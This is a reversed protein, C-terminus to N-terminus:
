KVLAILEDSLRIVEDFHIEAEEHLLQDFKEKIDDPVNFSKLLKAAEDMGDIDIDKACNSLLTLAESFDAKSFDNGSSKEETSELVMTISESLENFDSIINDHHAEVFSLDGQGSADELAKAKASLDDAGILRAVGKLAHVHIKYEPMDKKEYADKMLEIQGNKSFSKLSNLYFDKKGMSYSLGSETNLFSSLTDFIEKYGDENQSEDAKAPATQVAESLLSSDLYQRCMNILEKESVPKSLYDTFGMELYAERAGIVANATLMIVPTDPNKNDKMTKMKRFAEVGDPSPMMHDLFIIDYKKETILKLFEEGGGATDVTMKSPEFLARMVDLNMDVDDVVLVKASPALFWASPDNDASAAEERERFSGITSEDDTGQPITVIFSTGKGYTSECAISGNMLTVLNKTIPLGLGTGEINSNSKENLREYTDFLHAMDEPKIGEGTDAVTIKLDIANEGTKEFGFSLSISGEKTYKLANSLLNLIVQRVRIEDGTLRAPINPDNNISFSLGKEGASLSTINNLDNVLSMFDYPSDLIEIKGSEIRSVDLIDDIISLLSEISSKINRSHQKM